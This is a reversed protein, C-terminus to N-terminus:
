TQNSKRNSSTRYSKFALNSVPTYNKDVLDLNAKKLLPHLMATKWDSSFHGTQLSINMIKTLIGVFSETNDKIFHMPVADLECSKTQMESVIKPENPKDVLSGQVIMSQKDNANDDTCVKGQCMTLCLFKM